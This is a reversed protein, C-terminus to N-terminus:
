RCSLSDADALAGHPLFGWEIRACGDSRPHLRYLPRHIGDGGPYAGSEHPRDADARIYMLYHRSRTSYNPSNAFRFGLALM